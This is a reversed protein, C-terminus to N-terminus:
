MNGYLELSDSIMIMLQCVWLGYGIGPHMGLLFQRSDMAISLPSWTSVLTSYNSITSSQTFGPSPYAIQQITVIWLSAALLYEHQAGTTKLHRKNVLLDAGLHQRAFVNKTTCHCFYHDPHSTELLAASSLKLITKKRETKLYARSLYTLQSSTCNNATYTSRLTSAISTEPSCCMSTSWLIKLCLSSAVPSTM